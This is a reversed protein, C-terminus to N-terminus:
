YYWSLTLGTQSSSFGYGSASSSNLTYQYFLGAECHTLFPVSLGMSYSYGDDTRTTSLNATAIKYDEKTYGFGVTLHVKGLLLQEYGLGISTHEVIQSEFLSSGIDRNAYLSFSTNEFLHYAIDGSFIPNWATSADENQFDRREIGVMVYATLKTGPHWSIHADGQEDISKFGKGQEIQTLTVGAGASINEDFNYNFSEGGFYSRSDTLSSSGGPGNTGVTKTNEVFVLDTGATTQLSVKDNFRYSVSVNGSYETRKTQVSTEVLPDATATLIQNMGLTWNGYQLAGNFNAAQDITNYFKKRSYFRLSPSYALSAHPGFSLNIEPTLTQSLTDQSDGPVDHIGTAYLFQYSAQAHLHLAGWSMLSALPREFVGSGSSTTEGGGVSTTSAAQSNSQTGPQDKTPINEGAAAEANAEDIGQGARRQGGIRGGNSAGSNSGSVNGM